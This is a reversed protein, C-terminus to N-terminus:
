TPRNRVGRSDRSNRMGARSQAVGRRAPKGYQIETEDASEVQVKTIEASRKTEHSPGRRRSKRGPRMVGAEGSGPRRPNIEGYVHEARVYVCIAISM